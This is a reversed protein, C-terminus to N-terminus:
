KRSDTASTSATMDPQSSWANFALWVLAAFPLLLAWFGVHRYAIAGAIAGAAFAHIAPLMKGLRARAAAKAYSSRTWTAQSPQSCDDESKM